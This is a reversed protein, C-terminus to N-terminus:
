ELTMWPAESYFWDTEENTWRIEDEVDALVYDRLTISDFTIKM